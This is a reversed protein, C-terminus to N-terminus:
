FDTFLRKKQVFYALPLVVPHLEGRKPLHKWRQRERSNAPWSRWFHLHARLVAKGLAPQRQALFKLAALWDLLMRLPLKWWLQAGPLNKLLLALGNRFNLYTKLPSHMALSGGGLHYVTSAGQYMIKYGARQWRWCLDIEEMHAFFGEDFGSLQAFASARVAMCAGSAWFVPLANNYQGRDDEITDFVRGRCFPYGLMDLYGGGAGAYEFHNRHHYSLIKPQVAAVLADHRLAAVLPELWDATVEVDSNLLVFCDAEVQALARNYGGCFGYNKDLAICIVSPLHQKIWDLSGDTSGNDAVVIQAQGSHRVVSPLFQPLLHKGNYNLIVVATRM